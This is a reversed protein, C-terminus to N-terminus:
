YFFIIIVFFLLSCACVTIMIARADRGNYSVTLTASDVENAGVNFQLADAPTFDVPYDSTSMVVFSLIIRNFSLLLVSSLAASPAFVSSSSADGSRDLPLLFFSKHDAAGVSFKIVGRIM